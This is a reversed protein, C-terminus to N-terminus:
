TQSRRPSSAHIYADTRPLPQGRKGIFEDRSTGTFGPNADREEGICSIRRGSFDHGPYVLTEDALPMLKRTISDFLAGADEEAAEDADPFGSLALADGVFLRDHWQYSMCGPTHGPTARCHVVQNGFVVVDGEGARTVALAAPVPCNRGCVIRAATAGQLEPLGAADSGRHLHTLLIHGLRAQIEDLLALYLTGQGAAPDIIVAERLTADALLYTFARSRHDRVQRFHTM